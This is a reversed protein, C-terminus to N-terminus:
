VEVENPIQSVISSVLRLRLLDKVTATDSERKSVLREYEALLEKPTMNAPVKPRGVQRKYM